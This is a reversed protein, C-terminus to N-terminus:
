YYMDVMKKYNGYV